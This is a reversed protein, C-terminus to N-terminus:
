SVVEVDTKLARECIGVVSDLWDENESRSYPEWVAPRLWKGGVLLFEEQDREDVGDPYAPYEDVEDEVPRTALNVDYFGVPVVGEEGGDIADYDIQDIWRGNPRSGELIENLATRLKEVEATM